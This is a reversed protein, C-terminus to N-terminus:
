ENQKEKPPYDALKYFATEGAKNSCVAHGCNGDAFLYCSGCRYPYDTMEKILAKGIPIDIM